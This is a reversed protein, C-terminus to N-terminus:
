VNIEGKIQKIQSLVEIYSQECEIYPKSGEAYGALDGLLQTQKNELLMLQLSTHNKDEVNKIKGHKQRSEFYKSPGIGMRGLEQGEILCIDQCTNELLYRDHSCVMMAGEFHKLAEELTKKTTMDLHNTPEDLILFDVDEMILKAIKVRMREGMSFDGIRKNILEKGLGLQALIRRAKSQQHKDYVNLAQMMTHDQELDLIDQSIYAVKLGPNLYVHGKYDKDLDRIMNILTTKGSGNEGVLAVREGKFLYFNAEKFLVHEGFAKTVGEISLLKKGRHQHHGFKFQIELLDEPREVGTLDVKELQKIKSKIQKDKKKVKARFFEKSGFATGTKDVKKTSERHGKESWTKLRKIEKAIEAKEKEQKNYAQERTYRNHSKQKEYASYNGIYTYLQKHELEIIKDAVEDLFYRDHSIIIYGGKYQKLQDILWERGKMDLHNTPEDLILLDYSYEFIESLQYKTKEGGSLHTLRETEIKKFAKVGSKSLFEYNVDVDVEQENVQRLYGITMDTAKRIHGKTPELEGSIMKVLSTKGSGNSGILGIREYSYLELNVGDLILREDYELKVQNMSILSM